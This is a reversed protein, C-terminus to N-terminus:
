GTRATQSRAGRSGSGPASGIFSGALAPWSVTRSGSAGRTSFTGSDAMVFETTASIGAPDVGGTTGGVGGTARGVGETTVGVVAAVVTTVGVGGGAGAGAGAGVWAGAGAGVGVAAGSGGGVAGMAGTDTAPSFGVASGVDGATLGTTSGVDDAVSGTTSGSGRRRVSSGAM